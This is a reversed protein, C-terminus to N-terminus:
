KMFVKKFKAFSGAKAGVVREMATIFAATKAAIEKKTWQFYDDDFLVLAATLFIEASENPFPTFFIGTDIGEKVVNGICPGLRLIYQTISKQHMKSNDKEHLVSNFDQQVQNQPKQAMMIAVLKKVPPLSSVAIEEAKKVGENIRRDVLTDLVDEKSRFYYYFTGKAIKVAELIDNVTATGYGKDAFLKEAADLIEKKREEPEKITRM